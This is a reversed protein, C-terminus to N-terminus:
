VRGPLAQREHRRRQRLNLAESHRCTGPRNLRGTGDRLRQGHSRSRTSARFIRLFGDESPVGNKLVLFRCLWAEKMSVWYAIDEVADCDSLMAAIAIVLNEQFDHAWCSIGKYTEVLGVGSTPAWSTPRNSRHLMLRQDRLFDNSRWSADM